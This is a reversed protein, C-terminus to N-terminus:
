VKAAFKEERKYYFLWQQVFGSLDGYREVLTESLKEAPMDGYYPEFVKRIWTDVPFVDFRNFGFLLVCDAVKRGVGHLATLKARLDPTPLADWEGLDVDALTEATRVLYPARYGAGISHFFEEGADAIAQVSPFAHYGGMDRGLAECMREIIGKIRPIHNNQSILFSFVTEVPSQRLIHIGKGFEVAASVLGKDQVKMQIIDYNTDFDLYKKFFAADDCEFIYFDEKERAEARHEGASMVTVGGEERFRFVQGCNLTQTLSFTPTKEVEFTMKLKDSRAPDGSLSARM